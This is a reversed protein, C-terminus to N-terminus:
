HGPHEFRASAVLAAVEDDMRYAKTTSTAVTLTLAHGRTMLTYGTLRTRYPVLEDEVRVRQTFRVVYHAARVGALVARDTLVDFRADPWLGAFHDRMTALVDAIPAAVLWPRRFLQATPNLHHMSGHDRYCVMIPDNVDRGPSEGGPAAPHAAPLAAEREPRM